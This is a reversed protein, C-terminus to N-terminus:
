QGNGVIVFPAWFIPHAYAFGDEGTADMLSLMSQRLAEARAVDGQKQQLRFVTTTLRKASVTELPWM